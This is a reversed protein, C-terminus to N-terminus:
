LASEGFDLVSGDSDLPGIHVYLQLGGRKRRFLSWAPLVRVLAFLSRFLSIGQKYVTALEVVGDAGNQVVPEFVMKWRELLIGQRTPQIPTGNLVAAEGNALEPVQLVVAMEFALPETLATVARYPPGLAAKFADTDTEPVDLNFWRDVKIKPVPIPNSVRADAVVLAFKHFLRHGIQDARSRASDREVVGSSSASINADSSSSSM